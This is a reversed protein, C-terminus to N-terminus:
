RLMWYILGALSAIWLAFSCALIRKVRREFLAMEFDHQLVTIKALENKNTTM